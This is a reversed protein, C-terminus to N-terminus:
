VGFQSLHHNVHKYMLAGWQVPTLKGFFAHQNNTCVAEGGKNFDSILKILIQKEKEFGETDGIIFGQHTPSSKKFPSGDTTTSKFFSGIMMVFINPKLYLEGTATKIGVSCHALMQNVNMKGWLHQTEPTLKNIRNVVEDVTEKQFLTKM